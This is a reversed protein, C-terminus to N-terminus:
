FTQRVENPLDGFGKTAIELLRLIALNDQRKNYKTAEVADKLRGFVGNQFGMGPQRWAYVLLSAVHHKVAGDAATDANVVGARQCEGFDPRLVRAVNMLVEDCVDRGERVRNPIDKEVLEEERVLQLPEGV